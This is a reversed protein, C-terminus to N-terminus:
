ISGARPLRIVGVDARGDRGPSAAFSKKQHGRANVEGFIGLATPIKEALFAGAGDTTARVVTAGARVILAAGPVPQGDEGDVVRGSVSAASQAVLRLGAKQEGDAVTVNMTASRGDGATAVLEHSGPGLGDVRFAGRGDSVSRSRGEAVSDLFRQLGHGPGPPVVVLTYSSIPRDGTDVLVGSLMASKELQFRVETGVAVGSRDVEPHGPAAVWITYSGSRLSELTFAGDAGTVARAADSSLRWARRGSETEFCGLVAAGAV